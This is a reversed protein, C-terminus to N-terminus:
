ENLDFVDKWIIFPTKPVSELISYTEEDVVM